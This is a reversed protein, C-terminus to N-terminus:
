RVPNIRRRLSSGAPNSFMVLLSDASLAQITVPVYRRETTAQNIQLGVGSWQYPRSLSLERNITDGVAFPPATVATLVAATAAADIRSIYGAAAVPEETRWEGALFTASTYIFHRNPATVSQTGDTVVVNFLGGAALAGAPECNQPTACLDVRLSTATRSVVHALEGGIRVTTGSRFNEGSITFVTAGIGVAPSNASVSIPGSPEAPSVPGDGGSGGCATASVLTVSLVAMRGSSQFVSRSM